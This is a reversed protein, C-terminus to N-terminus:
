SLGRLYVVLISIFVHLGYIVQRELLLSFFVFVFTYNM